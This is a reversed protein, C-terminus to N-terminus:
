GLSNVLNARMINVDFYKIPLKQMHSFMMIRMKKLFGQTIIALLQNYVIISVLSVFYLSALISVLKIIDSSILNWSGLKYTNELIEIVKQMFISPMSAVIASIIILLITIPLLVPYFKFLQKLLRKLSGPKKKTSEKM